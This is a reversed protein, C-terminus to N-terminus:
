ANIAKKRPRGRRRKPSPGPVQVDEKQDNRANPIEKLERYTKAIPNMLDKAEDSTIYGANALAAIKNIARNVKLTLM